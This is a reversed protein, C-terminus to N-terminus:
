GRTYEDLNIQLTDAITSVPSDLLERLEYVTPEQGDANKIEGDELDVLFHVASVMAQYDIESIMRM